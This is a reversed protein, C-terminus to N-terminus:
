ETLNAATDKAKMRAQMDVRYEELTARFQQKLIKLEGNISLVDKDRNKLLADEFAAQRTDIQASLNEPYSVDMGHLSLDTLSATRREKSQNFVMSRTTESALWTSYQVSSYSEVPDVAANISSRMDAISGNLKAMQANTEDSFLISQHRMEERAQTIEDVTRLVPVPFTATLYDEEIQRLGATRTGNSIGDIYSIVGDMRAQQTKGIYAVHMKLPSILEASDQIVTNGSTSQNTGQTSAGAVPVLFAGIFLLVLGTILIEQRNM